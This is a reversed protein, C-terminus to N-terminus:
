RAGLMGEGVGAASCLFLLTTAFQDPPPVPPSAPDSRSEEKRVKIDMKTKEFTM